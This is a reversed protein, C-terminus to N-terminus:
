TEKTSNSKKSSKTSDVNLRTYTQYFMEAALKLEKALGALAVEERRRMADVKKNNDVAM